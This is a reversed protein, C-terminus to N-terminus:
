KGVKVREIFVDTPRTLKVAGIAEATELARLVTFAAAKKDSKGGSAVFAADAKEALEGLTAKASMEAVVQNAAASRNIKKVKEVKPTESKAM